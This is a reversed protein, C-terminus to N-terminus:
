KPQEGFWKQYIEAYKGNEKLKKLAANIKELTETKGKPIAIGYEEASLIEGVLKVDNNGQQIFYASVPYDNVVADVGGNKLELLAQDSNTFYTIKDKDTIKEAHMAGTTGSQVAIKKGKLDEFSKIDNNKAQVAVILGSKYYPESFDVVKAREPTITMASIAADIQKAQLAAILGDFAMVQLDMEYGAEEAIAQMLEIDFGVYKGTKPDTFEFPAFTADAGVVLKPKAEAKAPEKPQEQSQSGGCGVASVALTLALVALLAFKIMKKM